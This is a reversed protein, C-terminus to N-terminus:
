ISKLWIMVLLEHIKNSVSRPKDTVFFDKMLEVEPDCHKETVNANADMKSGDAANTAHIYDQM